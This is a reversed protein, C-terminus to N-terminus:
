RRVQTGQVASIAADAGHFTVVAFGRRARLEVSSIPGFQAFHTTLQARLVEADQVLLTRM